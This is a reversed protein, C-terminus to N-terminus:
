HKILKFTREQGTQNERIKLIFMGKPFHSSKLLYNSNPMNSLHNSELLRGNLDYLQVSFSKNLYDPIQINWGDTTPNPFIIIEFPLTGIPGTNTSDNKHPCPSGNISTPQNFLHNYVVPGCPTNIKLTILKGNDTYPDFFLPYEPLNSPASFAGGNISWQYTNGNVHPTAEIRYYCSGTLNSVDLHYPFGTLLETYTITKSAGCQKGNNTSIIRAKILSSVKSSVAKITISNNTSSIIQLNSSASWSVSQGASLPQDFYLTMQQNLCLLVQPSIIRHTCIEPCGQKGFELEELVWNVTKENLSVHETNTNQTLYNDFYLEDDCLLNRNDTIRNPHTNWNWNPDKFGLASITPIFTINPHLLYYEISELSGSKKLKELASYLEDGIDKVGKSYGGSTIEMCGRPNTTTTNMEGYWTEFYISWAFLSFSILNYNTSYTIEPTIISPAVGTGTLNSSIGWNDGKRRITNNFTKCSQGILNSNYISLDFGLINLPATGKLNLVQDKENGNVRGGNGAGNTITVKRLNQPYGHSGNLGNNERANFWSQYFTSNRNVGDLQDILMQRAAPSRLKIEFNDKAAQQQAFYGMHFLAQQIGILVTAGEHPSDFSVWLKTNHPLNQKEMYALAYRSIQGGMSPGIIRLGNEYHDNSQLSTNIEQILQVLLFANRELYDAGGDRGNLNVPNGSADLVTQPITSVTNGNYDKILVPTADEDLIPYGLVPFNLIIVDYGQSRLQDGLPNVSSPTQYILHEQYLENYQRKNGPDFGDLIIVPNTIQDDCEGNETFKYYIHYDAHSTTATNEDYGQFPISSSLLRHEPDCVASIKHYVEVTILQRSLNTKGNSFFQKITLIFQGSTPPTFSHSLNEASLVWTEHNFTIELRNLPNESNDYFLEPSWKMSYAVGQTLTQRPIGALAKEHTIYPVEPGNNDTRNGLSDMGMRGDSIATSDITAFHYHISIVPLSNGNRHYEEVAQRMATYSNGRDQPSIHSHDLDFWSQYLHNGDTTDGSQWRDLASWPYVRNYLVGYPIRDSILGTSHEDFLDSITKLSDSFQASASFILCLCAWTFFPKKM